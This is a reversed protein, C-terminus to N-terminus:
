EAMFAELAAVFAQPAEIQPFHGADDIWRLTAGALALHLREANRRSSGPLTDRTGWLLCPAVHPTPAGDGAVLLAAFRPVIIPWQTAVLRELEEPANAVDAFAHPIASRTYSIRRVLVEMLRSGPGTAGLTRLVSPTAPMPRGDVLVLGACREPSRGALSWVVSGGFSNGICWTREVELADLLEVLWAAYDRVSALPPEIVDGLGPLDPAIVRHRRALEDWVRSWHMHAGGWGGHVLLMAEGTGGQFTRTARGRVSVRTEEISSPSM